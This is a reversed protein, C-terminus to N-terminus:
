RFTDKITLRHYIAGNEGDESVEVKYADFMIAFTEALNECSTNGLDKGELHERVYALIQRKWMIFEVDRNSHTVTKEMRVHFIHRHTDRLFNVEPLPCEGWKHLAEFQFTVFVAKTVQHISYMPEDSM